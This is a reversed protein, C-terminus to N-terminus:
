LAKGPGFYVFINVEPKLTVQFSLDFHIDEWHRILIGSSNRMFIANTCNKSIGSFNIYKFIYFFASALNILNYWDSHLRYIKQFIIINFKKQAEEIRMRMRMVTQRLLIETKVDKEAFALMVVSFRMKRVLMHKTDANLRANVHQLSLLVRQHRLILLKPLFLTVMRVPLGDMEKQLHCNWFHSQQMKGSIVQYNARKMHETLEPETPPLRDSVLQKKLFLDKRTETASQYTGKGM